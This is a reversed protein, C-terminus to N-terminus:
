PPMPREAATFDHFGFLKEAYHQLWLLMRRFRLRELRLEIRGRRRVALCTLHFWVWVNRLILAVGVFLLRLLPDRTSTRIRAQHMQRYTTEIAFRSRYTERVWACSPPRFGWYAYVLTQPRGPKGRKGLRGYVVCIGV